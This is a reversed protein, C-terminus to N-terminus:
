VFYGNLDCVLRADRDLIGTNSDNNIGVIYVLIPTYLQHNFYATFEQVDPFLNAREIIMLGLLAKNKKYDSANLM